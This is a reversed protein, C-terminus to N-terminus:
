GAITDRGYIVSESLFYRMISWDFEGLDFPAEIRLETKSSVGKRRVAGSKRVAGQLHAFEHPANYLAAVRM